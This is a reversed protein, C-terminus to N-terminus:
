RLSKYLFTRKFLEYDQEEFTDVEKGIAMLQETSLQPLRKTPITSSYIVDDYKAPVLSTKSSNLNQL